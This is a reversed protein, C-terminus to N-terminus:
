ERTIFEDLNLLARAVSMWGADMQLKMLRTQERETPTRGDGKM